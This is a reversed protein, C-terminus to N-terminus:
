KMRYAEISQRLLDELSGEAQPPAPQASGGYNTPMTRSGAPLIPAKKVLSEEFTKVLKKAAERTFGATERLSSAMQGPSLGLGKWATLKQGISEAIATVAPSEAASAIAAPAKKVGSEAAAELVKRALSGVVKRGVAAPGVGAAFSAAHQVWPPAGLMQAGKSVGAGLAMGGLTAVPAAAVAMGTGVASPIGAAAGTAALAQADSIQPTLNEGFKGRGGMPGGPTAQFMPAPAAAREEAGAVAQAEGTSAATEMLYGQIAQKIVEEPTGDPFNAVTGDPLNVKM